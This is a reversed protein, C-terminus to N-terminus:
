KLPAARIPLCDYGGRRDGLLVGAELAEEEQGVADIGDKGNDPIHQFRDRFRQEFPAM